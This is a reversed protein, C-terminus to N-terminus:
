CPLQFFHKAEQTKRELEWCVEEYEGKYCSYDGRCSGEGRTFFQPSDTYFDCAYSGICAGCAINDLDLGYCAYSGDCKVGTTIGDSYTCSQLCNYSNCVALRRHSELALPTRDFDHEHEVDFKICRGGRSSAPDEMCYEDEGCGFIGIDTDSAERVKLSENLSCEQGEKAPTNNDFGQPASDVPDKDFNVSKAIQRSTAPVVLVTGFVSAFTLASSSLKIIMKASRLQTRTSCNLSSIFIIQTNIRKQTAISTGQM